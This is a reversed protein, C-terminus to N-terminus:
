TPYEVMLRQESLFQPESQSRYVDGLGNGERANTARLDKFDIPCFRSPASWECVEKEGAM